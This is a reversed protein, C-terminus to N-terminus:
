SSLAALEFAGYGIAVLGLVVAVISRLRQPDTRIAALAGIRAGPIVGLALLIAVDWRINGVLSQGVLNPIVTISIVTLSTGLAVKVPLRLFRLYSPVLVFGGGVGLLGSLVGTVAGITVLAPIAPRSAPTEEPPHSGSPFTRVALVLLVAATVLMLIHGDVSRTALAGVLSGPVASSATWLAVRFNILGAKRYTLAGTITSPLIAPVTSGIALYPGIGLARILPTAIVAGGVGVGGSLLGSVLGAM